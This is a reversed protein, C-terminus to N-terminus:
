NYPLFRCGLLGSGEWERPTITVVLQNTIGGVSRLLLVEIGSRGISDQVVQALATLNRHNKATADGFSLVLDGSRLGSQEAPSGLLVGDVQCFAITPALDRSAIARKATADANERGCSSMSRGVERHLAFLTAELKIMVTNHDTRLCALRHRRERVHYVDIDARPFGAADILPSRIGASPTGDAGPSNLQDVIATVESEVSLRELDLALLAERLSQASM